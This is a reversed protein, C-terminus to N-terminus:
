KGEGEPESEMLWAVLGPNDRMVQYLGAGVAQVQAETLEGKTDLLEASLAHLIEHCVTQQKRSKSVKPDVYISCTSHRTTGFYRGHETEERDEEITWDMGAIKVKEPIM